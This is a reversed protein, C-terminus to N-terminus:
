MGDISIPESTESTDSLTLLGGDVAFPSDTESTRQALVLVQATDLSQTAPAPATTGVTGSQGSVANDNGGGCASVLGLCTGVATTMVTTRKM